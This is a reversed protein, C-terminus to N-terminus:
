PPSWASCARISTSSTSCAARPRSPAPTPPRVPPPWLTTGQTATGRATARRADRDAAEGRSDADKASNEGRSFADSRDRGLDRPAPAALSIRGCRGRPRVHRRLRGPRGRQGDGRPQRARARALRTRLLADDAGGRGRRRHAAPARELRPLAPLLGAPLDVGFGELLRVGAPTVVGGDADLVVLRREILRDALAVALRGALHDYCTRARRVADDAASRPRHRPPAELAAVASISELMRGVLPSALGFYRHRGQKAVTLLHMEALKSLHASATQASVGAVFALEGATLARGDMLANLMNARAPDGLLAAVQAISPGTSM